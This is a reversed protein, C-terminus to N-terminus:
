LYPQKWGTLRLSNSNEGVRYMEGEAASTHTALSLRILTLKECITSSLDLRILCAIIRNFMSTIFKYNKKRKEQRINSYTGVVFTTFRFYIGAGNADTEELIVGNEYEYFLKDYWTQKVVLAKSMSLVRLRADHRM